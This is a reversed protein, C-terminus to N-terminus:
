FIKKANRRSSVSKTRAELRVNVQSSSTLVESKVMILTTRCKDTQELVFIINQLSWIIILTSHLIQTRVLMFMCVPQHYRIKHLLTSFILPKRPLSFNTFILIYSGNVSTASPKNSSTVVAFAFYRFLNHFNHRFVNSARPLTIRCNSM